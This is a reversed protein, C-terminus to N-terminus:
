RVVRYKPDLTCAQRLHAEAAENRGLKALTYGMLLYSLASSKDLSLAQQLAVQSSKYDGTRYYAAGLMRHVAASNPFQKAAPTLLEVALAPQKARLAAAAASIVIQPNDPKTAAAQRFHELAAQPSGEALAAEGKRLWTTAPDSESIGASGNSRASDASDVTTPTSYGVPVGEPTPTQELDTPNPGVHRRGSFTEDQTLTNSHHLDQRAAVRAAQYSAAFAENHPDMKSAREYYALADASQGLTDYVMAMTYQVKANNPDERLAATAHQLASPADGAALLLEAMLLRAERHQPRRTLLKELAERCGKSDGQQLWRTKAAEFEAVDRLKDFHEEIQKDRKQREPTIDGQTIAKPLQVGSCGASLMLLLCCMM